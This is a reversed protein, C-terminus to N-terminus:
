HEPNRTFPVFVVPMLKKTIAKGNKKEILLLTQTKRPPGVPIVMTGGEKLQAFLPPPIAPAGATVMIADYPAHEQWGRYGDDVKVAVNDYGLMKLREAAAKGHEPVIEVSYVQKVIAALVAAQYGSGTGVELVKMQPKPRIAETMYAVIFPQSITQGHGIPLPSDTYAQSELEPPVFRHRKVTRMAELVAENKVGRRAIQQAVMTDREKKYIDEQVPFSLLVLLLLISVPLLM